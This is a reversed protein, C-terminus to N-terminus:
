RPSGSPPRPDRAATRDAFRLRALLARVAKPRARRRLAASLGRLRRLRLRVARLGAYRQLRIGPFGAGRRALPRGAGAASPSISLVLVPLRAAAPDRTRGETRSRPLLRAHRRPGADPTGRRGPTRCNGRGGVHRRGGVSRASREDDSRRFISECSSAFQM